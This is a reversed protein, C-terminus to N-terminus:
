YNINNRVIQEAVKLAELYAKKEKESYHHYTEVRESEKKLDKEVSSAMSEQAIESMWSM